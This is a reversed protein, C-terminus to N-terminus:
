RTLVEKLRKTAFRIDLETVNDNFIKHRRIRKATNVQESNCDLYTWCFRSKWRKGSEQFRCSSVNVILFMRFQYCECSAVNLILSMRFQRCEHNICSSQSSRYINWCTESTTATIYFKDISIIIFSVWSFMHRTIM